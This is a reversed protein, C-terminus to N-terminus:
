QKSIAFFEDATLGFLLRDHYQGNLFVCERSTGELQCGLSRLLAAAETNDALCCGEFKHLRREAFAYKLLLEMAAKGYGKRRQENTIFLKLSFTGHRENIHSFHIQGLYSGDLATITFAPVAPSHEASTGSPDPHKKQPPLTMEQYMAAMAASDQGDLYVSAADQPDWLRLLITKNQFYYRPYAAM